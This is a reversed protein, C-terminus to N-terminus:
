IKDIAGVLVKKNKFSANASHYIDSKFVLTKGKKPTIKKNIPEEFYTFGDSNNLYLISSYKETKEHNHRSQYGGELYEIYHMHFCRNHFNDHPLIEKLLDKSFMDIINETQYGKETCTNHAVNIFNKGSLLNLIKKVTNNSINYNYIVDKCLCGLQEMGIM